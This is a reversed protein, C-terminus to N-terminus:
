KCVIAMFFCRFTLLVRALGVAGACCSAGEGGGICLLGDRCAGACRCCSSLWVVDSLCCWGCASCQTQCAFMCVQQQAAEGGHSTNNCPKPGTSNLLWRTYVGLLWRTYVRAYMGEPDKSDLLWLTVVWMVADCCCCLCSCPGAVVILNSSPM